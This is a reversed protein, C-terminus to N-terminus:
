EPACRVAIRVSSKGASKGDYMARDADRLMREPSDNPQGISIGISLSPIVGRRTMRTAGALERQIRVAATRAEAETMVDYVLVAFEDGAFRAIVDGPRVCTQMARTVEVLLEDGAAHGHTDNVKKLNDVDIFLVAFHRQMSSQAALTLMEMFSQRNLAGTLLDHTAKYNLQAWSSRIETVDRLYGRSYLPKGEEVYWNCSMQIYKVRSDRCRLSTELENLDKNEQLRVKVDNALKLDVFFDTIQHGIYEEPAYGLIALEARNARLIRANSDLMHLGVPTNEFLDDLQRERLRLAREAHTRETVDLAIGACGIVAGTSSRQPSVYAQLHRQKFEIDFPAPTGDLAKQHAAFVPTQPDFFGLVEQALRGVIDTPRLNMAVLGAGTVSTCRLERDTTWMVVPLNETMLQIALIRGRLEGQMTSIRASQSATEDDM